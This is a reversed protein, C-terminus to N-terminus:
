DPTLPFKLNIILNNKLSSKNSNAQSDPYESSQSHKIIIQLVKENRYKASKFIDWLDQTSSLSIRFNSLITCCHSSYMDLLLILSLAALFGGKFSNLRLQGAFDFLNTSLSSKESMHLRFLISFFCTKTESIRILALMNSSLFSLKALNGFFTDSWLVRTYWLNRLVRGVLSSSARFSFAPPFDFSLFVVASQKKEGRRNLILLLLSHRFFTFGM